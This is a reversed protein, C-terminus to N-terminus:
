CIAACGEGSCIFGAPCNRTDNNCAQFIPADFRGCYSDERTEWWCVDCGIAICPPDDYCPIACTGNSLCVRDGGCSCVGGCGNDGCFNVPCNPTCCEQDVCAGDCVFKGAPCCLEEGYCTGWCCADDCCQSQGAVCCEAGCKSAGEPCTCASGNWYQQGPCSPTGTLRRPRTAASGDSAAAGLTVGALAAGRVLLWRRSGGTALRRALRDFSSGDM